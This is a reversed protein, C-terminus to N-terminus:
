DRSSNVKWFKGCYILNGDQDEKVTTAEKEFGSEGLEVVVVEVGENGLCIAYYDGHLVPEGRLVREGCTVEITPFSEFPDCGM